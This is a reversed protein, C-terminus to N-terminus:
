AMGGSVERPRQGAAHTLGVLDLLEAVRDKAAKGRTGRPLGLAVNQAITRWPLLRPEQFAIATSDDHAQVGESDLTISGATPSDLGGILRLLTSKGCGSPGVVAVIEGPVVDITVDRLVTRAGEKTPFTREVDSIRVQGASATTRTEVLSPMTMLCAPAPRLQFVRAYYRTTNPRHSGHHIRARGGNHIVLAGHDAADVAGE